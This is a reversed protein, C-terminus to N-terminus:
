GSVQARYRKKKTPRKKGTALQGVFCGDCRSALASCFCQLQMLGRSRFRLRSVTTPQSRRLAVGGTTTSNRLKKADIEYRKEYRKPDTEISTIGVLRFWSHDGEQRNEIEYGARRLEFIRASYQAIGLGLIEPLPVWHGYNAQLKELMRQKQTGRSKV